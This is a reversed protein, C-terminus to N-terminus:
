KKTKVTLKKETKAYAKKGAAVAKKEIMPSEGKKKTNKM